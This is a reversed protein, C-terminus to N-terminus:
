YGRKGLEEGIEYLRTGAFVTVTKEEENLEDIGTLRDLSVIWDDTEVLRTFSHGAGAVRITKGQSAAEQVINVVEPISVPYFWREPMCESTHAWNTWRKRKM